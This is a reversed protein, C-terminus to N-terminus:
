EIWKKIVSKTETPGDVKICEIGAQYPSYDNGGLFIADGVFIMDRIVMSFHNLLRILGKAKNFGKPLFDISTTGGINIEFEPLRPELIKVIERRKNQDPDWVIKKSLNIM